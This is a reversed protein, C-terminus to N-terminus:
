EIERDKRERSYAYTAYGIYHFCPLITWSEAISQGTRDCASADYWCNLLGVCRRVKGVCGCRRIDWRRSDAARRAFEPRACTVNPVDRPSM